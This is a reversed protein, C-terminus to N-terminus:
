QAINEHSQRSQKRAQKLALWVAALAEDAFLNVRRGLKWKPLPRPKKM